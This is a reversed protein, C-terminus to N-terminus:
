WPAYYFALVIKNSFEELSRTEREGSETFLTFSLNPAQSGVAAQAAAPTVSSLLLGSALFLAPLSEAPPRM